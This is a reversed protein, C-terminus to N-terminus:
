KYFRMQRYEDDISKDVSLISSVKQKFQDVPTGACQDTKGCSIMKNVMSVQSRGVKWLLRQVGFRKHMCHTIGETYKVCIQCPLRKISSCISLQFSLWEKTSRSCRLVEAAHVERLRTGQGNTPSIDQCSIWTWVTSKRQEPTPLVLWIESRKVHCNYFKLQTKFADCHLSYVM